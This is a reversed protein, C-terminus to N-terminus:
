FYDRKIPAKVSIYIRKTSLRDAAHMENFYRSEREM